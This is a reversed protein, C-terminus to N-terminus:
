DPATRLYSRVAEHWREAHIELGRRSFHVGDGARLDGQLDDTDPGPRALSEAWLRTQAARIQQMAAPRHGPEFSARAVLWPPDLGTDAALARRLSAFADVYRGEEVGLFADREGQHWLIARVDRLAALRECLVPYLAGGPGGERPPAGPQWDFISTDGHGVAAIGVPVGLDRQLLDGFRPWPSGGISRDQVGPMPDRAVSWVRGDFASVRDNSVWPSLDGWNTANSQGATLFVEGVGFRQVVTTPRDGPSPRLELRHWGGEPVRVTVAFREGDAAAVRQWPMATGDALVPRVEPSAANAALLGTVEVTAGGREDRQFVQRELPSDLRPSPSSPLSCAVGSLALALGLVKM